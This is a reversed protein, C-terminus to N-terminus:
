LRDAEVVAWGLFSVPLILVGTILGLAFTM